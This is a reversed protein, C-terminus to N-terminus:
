ILMVEKFHREGRRGRILKWGVNRELADGDGHVPEQFRERAEPHQEDNEDEDPDGGGPDGVRDEEGQGQEEERPQRHELEGRPM